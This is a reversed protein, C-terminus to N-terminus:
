NKNCLLKMLLKIRIIDVIANYNLVEKVGRITIDAGAKLLINVLDERGLRVAYHLPTEGM